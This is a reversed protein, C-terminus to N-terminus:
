FKGRFGGLAKWRAAFMLGASALVMCGAYIGVQHFSNYRSYIAGDIPPGVLAGISLVTFLMGTRRGVDDTGGLHAVPAALLGVFAGSSGSNYLIRSGVVIPGPSASSTGM